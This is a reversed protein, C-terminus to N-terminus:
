RAMTRGPTTVLGPLLELLLLLLLLLSVPPKVPNVPPRLIKGPEM